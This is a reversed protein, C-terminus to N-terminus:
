SPYETHRVRVTLFNGGLENVRSKVDNYGFFGEGVTAMRPLLNYWPATSCRWDSVGTYNFM